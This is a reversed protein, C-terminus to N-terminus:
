DRIPLWRITEPVVPTADTPVAAEDLRSSAEGLFTSARCLLCGPYERPDAHEAHPTLVADTAWDVLRQAGALLGLWDTGRAPGEGPHDDAPDAEADSATPQAGADEDGPDPRATPANTPEEDGSYWWPTSSGTSM